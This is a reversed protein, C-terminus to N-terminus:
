KASTKSSDPQQIHRLPDSQQQAYSYALTDVKRHLALLRYNQEQIRGQLDRVNKTAENLRDQLGQFGFIVSSAIRPLGFSTDSIVKDLTRSQEQYTSTLSTKMTILANNLAQFFVTNVSRSSDIMAISTRIQAKAKNVQTQTNKSLGSISQLLSKAEELSKRTGNLTEKASGLTDKIATNINRLSDIQIKFELSREASRRRLDDKERDSLVEKTIGLLLTLLILVITAWGSATLKQYLHQFTGDKLTRQGIGVVAGIAGVILIALGIMSQIGPILGLWEIMKEM